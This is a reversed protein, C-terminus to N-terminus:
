PPTMPVARPPWFSLRNLARVQNTSGSLPNLPYCFFSFCPRFRQPNCGFPYSEKYRRVPFISFLLPFFTTKGPCFPSPFPFFFFLMRSFPTFRWLLALPPSVNDEIEFLQITMLLFSPHHTFGDLFLPNLLSISPLLFFLIRPTPKRPSPPLPDARLCSKNLASVFHPKLFSGFFFVFFLFSKVESILLLPLLPFCFFLKFSPCLVGPFFPYSRGRVYPFPAFGV